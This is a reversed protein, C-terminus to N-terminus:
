GIVSAEMYRKLKQPVSVGSALRRLSVCSPDGPLRDDQADFLIPTPSKLDEVLARLWRRFMELLYKGRQRLVEPLAAFEARLVNLRGNNPLGDVVVIESPDVYACEISDVCISVIDTVKEPKKVVCAGTRQAAFLLFNVPECHSEFSKLLNAFEARIRAREVVEGSRRFEDRLLSELAEENCVMNEISYCDLEFLHDSEDVPLDFDRDVFFYVKELLPDGHDLLQKYYEILQQKGAGPVPEYKPCGEIRKMWEEYVPVDQPGEYCFILVDPDQGRIRLIQLKLVSPHKRSSRLSEVIKM